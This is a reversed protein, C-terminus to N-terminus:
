GEAVCVRNRGGHKAAYLARDARAMLSDLGEDSAELLAVGISVTFQLVVGDDLPV